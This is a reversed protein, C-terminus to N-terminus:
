EIGGKEVIEILAKMLVGHDCNQCDETCRVSVCFRKGTKKMEEIVKEKDFATDQKEVLPIIEYEYMVAIRQVGSNRDRSYDMLRLNLIDLMAKRSILDDIM